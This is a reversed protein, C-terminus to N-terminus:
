PLAVQKHTLSFSLSLTHTHAHKSVSQNQKPRRKDKEGDGVVTVPAQVAKVNDEKLLIEKAMDCLKCVKKHSPSFLPAIVLRNCELSCVM